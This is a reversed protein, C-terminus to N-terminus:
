FTVKKEVCRQIYRYQTRIYISKYISSSFSALLYRKELLLEKELARQLKRAIGAIFVRFCRRRRRRHQLWQNTTTVNHNNNCNANKKIRRIIQSQFRSNLLFAWIYTWFYTLWLTSKGNIMANQTTSINWLHLQM